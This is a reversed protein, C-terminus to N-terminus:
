WEEGADLPDFWKPALEPLRVAHYESGESWVADPHAAQAEELTDFSEVFTRRSQGALVSDAPWEDYRYVGYVDDSYTAGCSPFEITKV